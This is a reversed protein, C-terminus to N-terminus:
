IKRAECRLDERKRETESQYKLGEHPNFWGRSSKAFPPQSIPTAQKVSYDIIAVNQEEVVRPNELITKM